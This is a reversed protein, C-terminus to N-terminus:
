QWKIYFEDSRVFADVVGRYGRVGLQGRWYNYGGEDNTKFPDRGFLLRYCDLVFADDYTPNVGPVPPPNALEPHNLPLFTEVARFFAYAVDTRRTKNCVFDFACQAIQGRWNNLGVADPQRKYFQQYMLSVFFPSEDVQFDSSPGGPCATLGPPAVGHTELMTSAPTGQVRYNPGTAGIDADEPPQTRIAYAGGPAVQLPDFVVLGGWKWRVVQLTQELRPDAGPEDSVQYVIYTEYFDNIRLVDDETFLEPKLQEETDAMTSTFELTDGLTFSATIGIDTGLADVLPLGDAWLIYAPNTTCVLNQGSARKWNRSYVQVLKMASQGPESITPRPSNVSASFQIATQCGPQFSWFSDHNCSNTPSVPPAIQDPQQTGHFDVVVPLTVDMTLLASATPLQNLTYAAKATCM